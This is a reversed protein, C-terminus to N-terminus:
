SDQHDFADLAGGADRVQKTFSGYNGGSLYGTLAKLWSARRQAGDGQRDNQATQQSEFTPM